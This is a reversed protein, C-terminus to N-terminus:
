GVPGHDREALEALAVLSAALLPRREALASAEAGSGDGAPTALLAVLGGDHRAVALL